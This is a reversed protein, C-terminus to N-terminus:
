TLCYDSSRPTNCDDHFWDDEISDNSELCNEDLFKLYIEVFIGDKGDTCGM